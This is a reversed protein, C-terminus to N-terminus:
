VSSDKVKWSPRSAPKRGRRPCCRTLLSHPIWFQHSNKMRNQWMNKPSWLQHSKKYGINPRSILHSGSTKSPKPNLTDRNTLNKRSTKKALFECCHDKESSFGLLFHASAVVGVTTRIVLCLKRRGNFVVILGWFTLSIINSKKIPVWKRATESLIGEYYLGWKGKNNPDQEQSRTITIEGFIFTFLKSKNCCNGESWGLIWRVFALCISDPDGPM